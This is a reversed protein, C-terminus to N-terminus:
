RVLTIARTRAMGDVTMRVVYRGSGAPVGGATHGDWRVRHDGAPMAADLLVAVQQGLANYLRIRVQGPRELRFPITTAPNFPNPYAPQLDFGGAVATGPPALATLVPAAPSVWIGRGITAIRVTTDAPHIHIDHTIVPPLGDNFEMWDTGGSLTVYVGLDTALYVHDGNHPNIAIAHVMIDPLNGTVDTWTSGYDTSRKVHDSNAFASNRTAWLVGERTPDAELDTVRWSPISPHTITEWSDGGNTSRVISWNSGTYTHGYVIQSNLRDVALSRVNAIAAVRQWVNGGNTTRYIGASTHTFLTRPDGPEMVTFVFLPAAESAPIGTNIPVTTRIGSGGDLSRFHRGFFNDGYLIDPDTPHVTVATGDGNAWRRWTQGADRDPLVQLGHDQFGGIMRRADSPASAIRYVQATVLGNSKREWWLGNDTSKQVGGDNLAYITAPADPAFAMFHQDVYALGANNPGSGNSLYDHWTWSQGGDDSRRLQVGGIFILDPDIPSVATMNVFWGICSTIQGPQCYVDPVNPLASWSDGGDDSRFLGAMSWNSPDTIGAYLVNPISDCIALSTHHFGSGPPLGGGLLQWTEGRDTSRYLGEGRVAAYLWGPRRKTIVLDTVHNSGTTPHTTRWSDGRDDSIWVGNTAALYVRGPDSRDWIMRYTSVGAAASPAFGTPAWSAGGDTSKLVGIGPYLTVSVSMGAGTGILLTHRDLPDVAVSSVPMSPINDTLPIWHEGGDGSKWLGGSGSGAYLISPDVPDFALSLMRGALTDITNPGWSEWAAGATVGSRSLHATRSELFAEWRQRVPMVGRHDRRAEVHRRARLYQKYGTGQMDAPAIRREFYAEQFFAEWADLATRPSATDSLDNQAPLPLTAMAVALAILVLRSPHM